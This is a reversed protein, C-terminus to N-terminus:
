KKTAAGLPPHHPSAAPEPPWPPSRPTRPTGPPSPSGPPTPAAAEPEATGGRAYRSVKEKGGGAQGCMTPHLPRPPRPRKTCFGGLKPWRAGPRAVSCRWPLPAPCPLIHPCGRATGPSPRHWGGDPHRPSSPCGWAHTPVSIDGWAVGPEPPVRCPPRAPGATGGLPADRCGGLLPPSMWSGGRGVARGSRSQRQM